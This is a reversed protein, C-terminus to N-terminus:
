GQEIVSVTSGQIGKQIFFHVPFQDKMAPLHSVVIIKSFNNQIAHLADMIYSLGEEDQSGFGEDIILTQLATGARRALLKSIAIRLAFDIRFAEGGSFMEYPRIGNQDSIKIDLTEKTGGKKLDRLSEIMIQAQNHTLQSLLHNAEQEIEPIAEEILLAQIGDKGTATSITQYDNIITNLAAINHAEREYETKIKHLQARQAQINGKMHLLQEKTQQMITYISTLEDERKKLINKHSTLELYYSVKEDIEREEVQLQRIITCLSLIEQKRTQQQALAKKFSDFSVLQQEISELEKQYRVHQERNYGCQAYQEEYERKRNCLEQYATETIVLPTHTQTHLLQEQAIILTEHLSIENQILTFREQTTVITTCTAELIKELDNYQIQLKEKQQARQKTAILQEHEIILREKILPILRKLRTFRHTLLVEQRDLHAKLFRRRSASLNQECHPCSPDVHQVLKKKQVSTQLQNNIINGLAVFRQYIAKRKELLAEAQNICHPLLERNQSYEKIEQEYTYKQQLTAEQLSTQKKLEDQIIEAINQRNQQEIILRELAIRITQINQNHDQQHQQEIRAMDQTISLIAEKCELTNHLLKQQSDVMACLTKKTTELQEYTHMSQKQRIVSKWEQRVEALRKYTSVLKESIQKKQLQFLALQTCNKELQHFEHHLGQKQELLNKEEEHLTNMKCSLSADETELENERTLETHRQEQLMTLINKKATADKVKELARIRIIEYQDLGLISALIQKRDKPSKKSFENSNGQRLFASNSFADFDLRITQEIKAQTTRITKDTLPIFEGTNKIITGFDLASLPKGSTEMYERRIRYVTDQLKFDFIVIMHNQGLRLLGADPKATGLIKRGQGWLAWTMADLLASKGHGNKGSLCILNYHSFDITQLQSGYSLFNKLQIKLPIM